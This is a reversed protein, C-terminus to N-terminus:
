CRLRRVADDALREPDTLGGAYLAVILRALQPKTCLTTSPDLRGWAMELVEGLMVIEARSWRRDPPVVASASQNLHDQIM